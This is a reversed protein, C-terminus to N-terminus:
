NGLLRRTIRFYLRYPMLQLLKMLLAFRRPFTIEFRNGLLGNYLANVARDAEMLFPMEFDNKDTLPTRVFGPNILQLKIGAEALEPRLSETLNILAAKSAGYASAGPLGGYGALSSVIAVHGVGRRRMKDLVSHLCEVTGVVNLQLLASIHEGTLTTADDAVHTGANLVALDIMGFDREIRDLVIRINSTDTIDLDFPYINGPLDISESALTELKELSRASAAVQWNESAMKIALARGIGSSAGTIWVSKVRKERLM